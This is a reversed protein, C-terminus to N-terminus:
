VIVATLGATLRDKGVRRGSQFHGVGGDGALLGPLADPDLAAALKGPLDTMAQSTVHGPTHSMYTPAPANKSTAARIQDHISCGSSFM